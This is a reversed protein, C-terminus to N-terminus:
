CTVYSHTFTRNFRIYDFTCTIKKWNEKRCSSEACRCVKITFSFARWGKLDVRYRGIRERHINVYKQYSALVILIFIHKLLSISVFILLIQLNKPFLIDNPISQAFEYIRHGITIEEFLQREKNLSRSIDLSYVEQPTICDSLIIIVFSLLCM